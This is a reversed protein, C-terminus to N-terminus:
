DFCGLTARRFAGIAIFQAAQIHHSAAFENLVTLVDDDNALVISFVHQGHTDSLLKARM